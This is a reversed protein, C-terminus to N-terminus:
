RGCRQLQLELELIPEEQLDRSWLSNHIGRKIALSCDQPILTGDKPVPACSNSAISAM